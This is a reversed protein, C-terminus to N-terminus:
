QFKVRALEMFGDTVPKVLKKPFQDVIARKIEKKMRRQEDNKQFFDVIETAEDMMEVLERVVTKVKEVIAEDISDEGQLKTLEAILIGHFAYETESLGLEQASELRKTEITDRFELLFLSLQDWREEHQKIIDELRQSLTRYYEPDDAENIRIHNRIAHEIDAAKAKDTKHM